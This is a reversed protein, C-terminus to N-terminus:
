QPKVERLYFWHNETKKRGGGDLVWRLSTQPVGCDMLQSASPKSAFVARFYEGYQDYDNHEDTLIWVTEM